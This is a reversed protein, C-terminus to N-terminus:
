NEFIEAIQPISDPNKSLALKKWISHKAGLNLLAKKCFFGVLNALLYDDSVDSTTRAGNV